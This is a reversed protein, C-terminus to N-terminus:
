ACREHVELRTARPNMQDIRRSKGIEDTLRDAREVRSLRCGDDDVRAGADLHDRRSQHLRRRLAPTDWISSIRMLSAGLGFAPLGGNNKLPDPVSSNRESGSGFFCTRACTKLTTMSGNTPLIPIKRTWWPVTVFSVCSKTPSPRLDNLTACRKM